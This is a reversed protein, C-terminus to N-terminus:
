LGPLTRAVRAPRPASGLAGGTAPAGVADPRHSRTVGWGREYCGGGGGWIELRECRVAFDRKRQNGRSVTPHSGLPQPQM